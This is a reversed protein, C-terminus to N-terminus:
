HLRFRGGGVHTVRARLTIFVKPNSRLDPRYETQCPKEITVMKARICAKSTHITWPWGKDGKKIEAKNVHLRCLVPREM